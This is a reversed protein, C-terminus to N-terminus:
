RSYVKSSKRVQSPFKPHCRVTEGQYLLQIPILKGSMTGALTVTIQRKDNIGAIEVQQAGQQKMILLTLSIIVTMM